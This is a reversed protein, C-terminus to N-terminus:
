VEFLKKHFDLEDPLLGQQILGNFNQLTLRKKPESVISLYYAMALFRPEINIQKAWDQELNDFAGGKILNVMATKNLKCRNMFDKLSSYPRGEKIRDVVDAGVYGLAKMGFLIQNNKVDPKFGYDSENIDVLSINVGAAIIEGLAKAIKGYDTGVEKDQNEDELSGSNVVLCATDWYIPNWNTAIYATQYGIFSYALAHIISFSYGMQPGVGCDWVYQGLNDSKAKSLEDEHLQPIKNMQKKGVIKRAANAEALSFNCINKDMLMTMLQEQSPPVGYSKLFYPELAKVEEEKLGYRKMEEYWLNINDKFRIYKEM